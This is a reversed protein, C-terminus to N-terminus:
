ASQEKLKQTYRAHLEELRTLHSGQVSGENMATQMSALEKGVMLWQENGWLVILSASCGDVYDKMESDRRLLYAHEERREHLKNLKMVEDYEPGPALYPLLEPLGINVLYRVVRGVDGQFDPIRHAVKVLVDHQNPWFRINKVNVAHGHDDRTPGCLFKPDPVKKPSPM